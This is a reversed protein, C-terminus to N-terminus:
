GYLVKGNKLIKNIFPDELSIRENVEEPKYVIYDVPLDTEMLHYLEIIRDDGYYPVDKKVIFLDIDNIEENGWIASGFLIIKEPRYKKILQNKINEVEILVDEKKMYGRQKRLNYYAFLMKRDVSIQKKSKANM